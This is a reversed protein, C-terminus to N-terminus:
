LEAPPVEVRQRSTGQTRTGPLLFLPLSIAVAVPLVWAASAYGYRAAALGIVAGGLAAGLDIGGNWLASIAGTDAATGRQTMALFAATQAVGYGTGYAVAAFLVVAAGAHLPLAVLGALSAVIGGIMVVRPPRRDVVLGGLWRGAARAAGSVLLFSAASGLGELPLAIPAFTVVGGFSLSTLIYATLIALMGPRRIAALLNTSGDTVHAPRNPIRLALLAGAAAVVCAILAAVDARGAALLFVGISPVFIGPASIALGYYGIAAGRRHPASLESVLAVSVVIAVGMGVGRGSAAAIMAWKPTHPVLYVLSLIATLAMGAVLLHTSRWRSLLWPTTLEGTVAGLFLAATAAGASGAPGGREVMVPVVPILIQFTIAICVALGALLFSPGALTARLSTSKSTAIVSDYPRTGKGISSPSM